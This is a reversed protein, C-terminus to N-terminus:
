KKVHHYKPGREAMKKQDNEAMKPWNQAMKRTKNKPKTM